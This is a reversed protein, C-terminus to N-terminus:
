VDIEERNQVGFIPVGHGLMCRLKVEKGAGPIAVEELDLERVRDGARMAGFRGEREEVHVNVLQLFLVIHV